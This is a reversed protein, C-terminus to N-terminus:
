STEFRVVSKLTTRIQAPSLHQPFMTPDEWHSCVLARVEPQRPSYLHFVTSYEEATASATAVEGRAAVSAPTKQVLETEYGIRTIVFRDPGVSRVHPSPKQMELRCNAEYQDLSKFPIAKGNQIYSRARDAPVALADELVMTMGVEIPENSETPAPPATNCAALSLALGALLTQGFGIRFPNM